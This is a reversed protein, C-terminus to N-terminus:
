TKYIYVFLVKQVVRTNDISIISTKLLWEDITLRICGKHQINKLLQFSPSLIKLTHIYIHIYLTHWKVNDHEHFIYM